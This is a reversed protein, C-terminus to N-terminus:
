VLLMAQAAEKIPFTPVPDEDDGYTNLLELHAITFKEVGMMQVHEFLDIKSSIVMESYTKYM